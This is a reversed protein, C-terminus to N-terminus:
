PAAEAEEGIERLREKLEAADLFLRPLTLFRRIRDELQRRAMGFAAYIEAESGEVAAPDPIGWHATIPRGPWIPCVEGAANDCVTIIV